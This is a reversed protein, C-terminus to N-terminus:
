ITTADERKCRRVYADRSTADRSAGIMVNWLAFVATTGTGVKTVCVFKM